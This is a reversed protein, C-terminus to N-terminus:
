VLVLCCKEVLAADPDKQQAGITSWNQELDGFHRWLKSDSWLDYQNLISIVETESDCRLLKLCLDRATDSSMLM